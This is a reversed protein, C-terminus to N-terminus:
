RVSRCMRYRWAKLPSRPGAAISSRAPLPSREPRPSSPCCSASPARAQRACFPASSRRWCAPDRWGWAFEGSALHGIRTAIRGPGGPRALADAQAIDLDFTRITVPAPAFSAILRRYADAQVAESEAGELGPLPAGILLLESRFLGIGEAGARLAAPVDELRDVNAELRVRVGDRTTAPGPALQPLAESDRRALRRRLPTLEDDTPEILLEGASGDLAVIRGPGVLTTATRLGVVTPIGLSRALIATHSTRSGADIALGAVLRWDMQAAISPPPDDAVLVFPGEDRSLVDQWAPATGRLNMRLRGVLDGVDGGRERLYADDMGAFLDAVEDFARQIAWDANARESEVLAIAKGVLLPDDLMLVQADFLPALEAGPGQNLRERIALLQDRTRERALELRDVEDRVREPAIAARLARGRRVLVVARGIAVGEVIASGSLRRTM